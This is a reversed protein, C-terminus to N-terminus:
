TYLDRKPLAGGATTGGKRDMDDDSRHGGSRWPASNVGFAPHSTTWSAKCRLMKERREKEQM